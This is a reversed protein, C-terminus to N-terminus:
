IETLADTRQGDGSGPPPHGSAGLEYAVAGALLDRAEDVTLSGSLWRDSLGEVLATLRAAAAQADM